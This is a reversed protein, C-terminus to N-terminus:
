IGSHAHADEHEPIAFIRMENESLTFTAVCCTFRTRSGVQVLKYELSVTFAGECQRAAMKFIALRELLTRTTFYHFLGAEFELVDAKESGGIADKLRALSM